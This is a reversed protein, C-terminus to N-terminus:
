FFSNKNKLSLSFRSLLSTSVYLLPFVSNIKLSKQKSFTKAVQTLDSEVKSRLAFAKTLNSFPNGLYDSMIQLSVSYSGDTPLTVFVDYQSALGDPQIQKPIIEVNPTQANSSNLLPILLEPDVPFSNGSLEVFANGILTKVKPSINEAGLSEFRISPYPQFEVM